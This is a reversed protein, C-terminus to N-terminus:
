SAVTTRISLHKRERTEHGYDDAHDRCDRVPRKSGTTRMVTLIVVILRDHGPTAPIPAAARALTVCGLVWYFVASWRPPRGRRAPRM